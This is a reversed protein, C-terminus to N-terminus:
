QTTINVTSQFGSPSGYPVVMNILLDSTVTISVSTSYYAPSSAYINAIEVGDKYVYSTRLAFAAIKITIIAGDPVELVEASTTPVADYIIQPKFDAVTKGSTIVYSDAVAIKSYDTTITITRMSSGGSAMMRRRLALQELTM